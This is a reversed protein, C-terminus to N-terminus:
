QSIKFRTKAPTRDVNGSADRARVMFVHKGKKLKHYTKPSNCSRWTNLRKSQGTLKCQLTLRGVGGRGSFKFTARRRAGNIKADLLRTNIRAGPAASSQLSLTFVGEIPVLASGNPVTEYGLGPVILISYVRGAVAQFSAPNSGDCTEGNPDLPVQALANVASGTFVALEPSVDHDGCAQITVKGTQSATWRYWVSSWASPEGPQQTANATTGIKSPSGGSLLAADAFADNPPPPGNTLVLNFTSGDDGSDVAIRYTTGGDARFDVRCYGASSAVRTLTGLTSGSYVASQIEYQGNSDCVDIKGTTDSPATWTYWVSAGGCGCSGTHDPEGPESTAGGTDGTTNAPSSGLDEANAFSDNPPSAFQDLTLLFPSPISARDVAVMYTLGPTPVFSLRCDGNRVVTLGNVVSGTYVALIMGQYGVAQASNCADLVVRQADPATWAYWVSTSAGRGTGSHDPEGPEATADLTTGSVSGSVVTADAFNDNPPAALAAESQMLGAIILLSVAAICRTV